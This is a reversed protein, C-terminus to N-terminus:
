LTSFPIVMISPMVTRAGPPAVSLTEEPADAATAMPGVAPRQGLPAVRSPKVSMPAGHPTRSRSRRLRDIAPTVSRFREIVAAALPWPISKWATWFETMSESRRDAYAFPMKRCRALLLLMTIFLVITPDNLLM